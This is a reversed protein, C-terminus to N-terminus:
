GAEVVATAGAAAAAMAEVETAVATAPASEAMVPMGKATADLTGGGARRPDEEVGWMSLTM